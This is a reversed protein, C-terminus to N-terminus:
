PDYLTSQLTGQELGFKRTTVAYKTCVGDSLVDSRSTKGLKGRQPPLL